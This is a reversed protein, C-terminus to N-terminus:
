GPTVVAAWANDTEPPKELLIVAAFMGVTLILLLLQPLLNRYTMPAETSPTRM